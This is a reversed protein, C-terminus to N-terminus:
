RDLIDTLLRQAALMRRKLPFEALSGRLAPTSTVVPETNVGLQAELEVAPTKAM